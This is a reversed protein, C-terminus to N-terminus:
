PILILSGTTKRSELDAHARAADQLAYETPAPIRVHGNRVVEFLADACALLEERSACYTAVTPRTLYLSGRSVLAGLPVPDVIGSANGFSVMLGRPRLCDLSDIFTDKGIGDYVVAVGEGATLERVKPAVPETSTVIVHDCGNAEAIAVKEERSVTGIVTAGLHKLWQSMITGVGGAASRLMVKDGPQVPYCRRILYESTLGKMMMSASVKDDIDEPLSILRDATMLRQECYSGLAAHYCVRDGVKFDSVGPGVEEVVGAGEMGITAPLADLTHTGSRHYIDLYNVGIASHRLRVQGEGPSGTEIDDYSCVEPGGYGHIRIAKSM